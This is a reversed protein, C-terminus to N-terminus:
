TLPAPVADARQQHPLVADPGPVADPFPPPTGGFEPCLSRHDCWKM